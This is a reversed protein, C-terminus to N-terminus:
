VHSFRSPVCTNMSHYSKLTGAEGVMKEGVGKPGWSVDHACGQALTLICRSCHCCSGEQPHGWWVSCARGHYGGPFCLARPRGQGCGGEPVELCM